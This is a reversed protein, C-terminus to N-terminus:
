SREMIEFILREHKKISSAEKESVPVGEGDTGPIPHARRQRRRRLCGPVRLNHQRDRRWRRRRRQRPSCRLRRSSFGQETLMIEVNGNKLEYSLFNQKFLKYLRFALDMPRINLGNQLEVPFRKGGSMQRLIEEDLSDIPAASKAEADM